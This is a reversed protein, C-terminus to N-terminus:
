LYIIFKATIRGAFICFNKEDCSNWWYKKVCIITQCMKLRGVSAFGRLIFPLISIYECCLRSEVRRSAMIPSSCDRIIQQLENVRVMSSHLFSLGEKTIIISVVGNIFPVCKISDIREPQLRIGVMKTIEHCCDSFVTNLRNSHPTSWYIVNGIERARKRSLVTACM